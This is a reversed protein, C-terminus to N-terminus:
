NAAPANVDTIASSDKQRQMRDLRRKAAVKISRLAAPMTMVANLDAIANAADGTGALLLARNYMAMAKVDDPANPLEIASTFADMAGLPDRKAVRALGRKYRSMATSRVSHRGILWQFLKM